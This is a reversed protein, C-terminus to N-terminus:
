KTIVKILNELRDMQEDNLNRVSEVGFYKRTKNKIDSATIGFRDVRLKAKDVNGSSRIDDKHEALPNNKYSPKRDMAAEADDDIAELSLVSQLGYRRLYTITSGAQQPDVKHLRIEAESETSEGSEVHTLVTRVCISDSYNAKSLPQTLLIGHKTLLPVVQHIISNIDAYKSKYFPNKASKIIPEMEKQVEFLAKNISM